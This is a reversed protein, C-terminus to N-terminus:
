GLSDIFTDNFRSRYYISRETPKYLYVKRAGRRRTCYEQGGEDKMRRERDRDNIMAENCLLTITPLSWGYM